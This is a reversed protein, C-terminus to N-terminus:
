YFRVHQAPVQLVFGWGFGVSGESAADVDPVIGGVAAAMKMEGVGGDGFGAGPDQSMLSYSVRRPRADGDVIRGLFKPMEAPEIELGGGFVPQISFAEVVSGAIFGCIRDEGSSM